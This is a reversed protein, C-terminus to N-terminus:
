IVEKTQTDRETSLKGRASASDGNVRANADENSMVSLDDFPRQPLDGQAAGM